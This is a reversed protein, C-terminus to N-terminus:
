DRYTCTGQTTKAIFHFRVEADTRGRESLKELNDEVIPSEWHRLFAWDGKKPLVSEKKGKKGRKGGKKKQLKHIKTIFPEM